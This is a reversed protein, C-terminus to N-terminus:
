FFGGFRLPDGPVRGCSALVRDREAIIHADLAGRAAPDQLKGRGSAVVAAADAAALKVVAGKEINRGALRLGAIVIVTFEVTDAGTLYHQDGRQIGGSARYCCRM